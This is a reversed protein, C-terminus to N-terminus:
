SRDPESAADGARRAEMFARQSMEFAAILDILLDSASRAVAQAEGAARTTSLVELFLENHVRVVELLPVSDRLAARGLEYASQLGSEDRQTLYRLMLPEYDRRFRTLADSM